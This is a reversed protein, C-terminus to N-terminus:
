KLIDHVSNFLSRFFQQHAVICEIDQRTNCSAGRTKLHPWNSCVGEPLMRVSILCYKILKLIYMDLIFSPSDSSILVTKHSSIVCDCINLKLRQLDTNRNNILGLNQVAPGCICQQNDDSTNYVLVFASNFSIFSM